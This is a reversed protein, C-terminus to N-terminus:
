RLAQLHTSVMRTISLAPSVGQWSPAFWTSGFWVFANWNATKPAFAALNEAFFLRTHYGAHTTPCLIADMIRAGSALPVILRSIRLLPFGGEEDPEASACLGSSRFEGLQADDFSM